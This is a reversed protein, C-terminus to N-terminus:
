ALDIGAAGLRRILQGARPFNKFEGGLGSDVLITRDASRVVAVNLAWDFAEPLLMEELWAAREAPEANTTMTDISLPLVGVSIVMVEIEGIQLAYRSPVLEDLGPRGPRSAKVVSNM